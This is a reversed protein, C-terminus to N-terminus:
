DVTAPTPPHQDFLKPSGKLDADWSPCQRHDFRRGAPAAAAFSGAVERLGGAPPDGRPPLGQRDGRLERRSEVDEVTRSGEASPAKKPEPRAEVAGSCRAFAFRRQVIWRIHRGFGTLPPSVTAPTPPSAEIVEASSWRTAM